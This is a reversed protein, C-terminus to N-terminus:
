VCLLLLLLLCVFFMCGVCVNKGQSNRLSLGKQQGGGPSLARRPTKGNQPTLTNGGSHSLDEASRAQNNRGRALSASPSGRSAKPVPLNSPGPRGTGRRM